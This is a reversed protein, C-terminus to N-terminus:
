EARRVNVTSGHGAALERRTECGHSRAPLWLVRSPMDAIEVGATVSGAPTAVTVKGGEAVGAEAATVASMLAVPPRATAALFPEGDQM